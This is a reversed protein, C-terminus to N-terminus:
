KNDKIFFLIAYRENLKFGDKKIKYIQITANNNRLIVFSFSKAIEYTTSGVERDLDYGDCIIMNELTYDERNDYWANPLKVSSVYEMKYANDNDTPDYLLDVQMDGLYTKSEILEATATVTLLFATVLVIFVKKMRNGRM